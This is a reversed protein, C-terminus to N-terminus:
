EPQQKGKSFLVPYIFFIDDTKYKACESRECGVLHKEHLTNRESIRDM